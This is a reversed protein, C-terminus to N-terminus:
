LTTLLWIRCTPLLGTQWSHLPYQAATEPIAMGRKMLQTEAPQTKVRGAKKNSGMEFSASTSFRIASPHL